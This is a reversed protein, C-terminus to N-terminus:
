FAVILLLPPMLNCCRRCSCCCRGCCNHCRDADVVAATFIATASVNGGVRTAADPLLSLTAVPAVSASAVATSLAAASVVSKQTSERKLRIVFKYHCNHFLLLFLLKIVAIIIVNCFVCCLLLICIFM